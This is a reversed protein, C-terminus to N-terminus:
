TWTKCEEHQVRPTTKITQVSDLASQFTSQDIAFSVWTYSDITKWHQGHKTTAPEFIDFFTYVKEIKIWGFVFLNFTSFYPISFRKEPTIDFFFNM